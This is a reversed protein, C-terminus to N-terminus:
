GPEGLAALTPGLGDAFTPHRPEWGLGARARANGIRFSTVLSDVLPGGILPKLLFPPVTGVREHGM